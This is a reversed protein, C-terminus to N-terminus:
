FDTLHVCTAHQYAYRNSNKWGQEDITGLSHRVANKLIRDLNTGVAAIMSLRDSDRTMWAEKHRRVPRVFVSDYQGSYEDTHGGHNNFTRCGGQECILWHDPSVSLLSVLSVQEAAKIAELLDTRKKNNLGKSVRVFWHAPPGGPEGARPLSCRVAVTGQSTTLVRHSMGPWRSVNKACSVKEPVNRLPSLHGHNALLQQVCGDLDAKHPPMNGPVAYFNQVEEPMDLTVADTLPSLAPIKHQLDSM